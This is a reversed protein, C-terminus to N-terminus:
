TKSARRLRRYLTSRDIGLLRAARSLKGNAEAIAARIANDTITSLSGVITPSSESEDSQVLEAAKESLVFPDPRLFAPLDCPGVPKGPDALALLARLVGILQRYNGPWEYAALYALTDPALEIALFTPQLRRWLASILGARDPMQRLTPLEFTYQAMRFFLDQRFRGEAVLKALPHHTACILAFDVPVAKEAGLPQVTREQLVRLLRAQLPLPMDGIEDLFLIGGHAQQLLGRHGKRRAGTFAGDEYGFLESEILTEPLAACNVAIFPKESRDSVQHTCRAFVEKGVGTEGQILVPIGAALLRVARTVDAQVTESLLPSTDNVPLQRPVHFRQQSAANVPKLLRGTLTQGTALRWQRPGTGLPGQSLLETLRLSSVAQWDGGLLYVATRNAGVLTDGDFALVGEQPTDLLTPNQHFRWLHCHDFGHEFFRHEIQEVALRVLSLAHLPRVEARCSLDLVGLLHGRPHFIPAAACSLIQHPEFFHEAGHVSIPRGEIFATGIANTGMATESWRVGPCLAVQSARDAFDVSGARDLILGSADALLVISRTRAADFCLAEIQPRALRLLLDSQDHFERLRHTDIPEVYPRQTAELGQDACRQWSRLIQGAVLDEPADGEDFFRRRAALVREGRGRPM